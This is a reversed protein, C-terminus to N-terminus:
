QLQSCVSTQNRLLGAVKQVAPLIGELASNAERLARREGQSRDDSRDDSKRNPSDDDDTALLQEIQSQFGTVTTDANCFGSLAGMNINTTDPVGTANTADTGVSMIFAQANRVSGDAFGRIDQALQTLRHHKGLNDAAARVKQVAPILLGILIAIIAIVVLLEILTFGKQTGRARVCQRLNRRAGLDPILNNGAASRWRRNLSIAINRM